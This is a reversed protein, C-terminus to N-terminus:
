QEEKHAKVHKALPMHHNFSQGCIACAYPARAAEEQLVKSVKTRAESQRYAVSELTHTGEVHVRAHWPLWSTDCYPCPKLEPLTEGELQPFEVRKGDVKYYDPRGRENPWRPYAWYEEILQELPMERAGGQRFLHDYPRHVTQQDPQFTGYKRLALMNKWRAADLIAPEQFSDYTIWGDARRYYGSDNRGRLMPVARQGDQSESVLIEVDTM